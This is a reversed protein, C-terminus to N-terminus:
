SLSLKQIFLTIFQAVKFNQRESETIVFFPSNDLASYVSCGARFMENCFASLSSRIRFIALVGIFVTALM